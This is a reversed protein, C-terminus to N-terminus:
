QLKKVKQIEFQCDLLKLLEEVSSIVKYKCSNISQKNLYNLVGDFCHDINLIYIPINKNKIIITYIESNRAEESPLIIIIDSILLIRDICEQYSNEIYLKKINNTEIECNRPIIITNKELDIDTYIRDSILNCERVIFYNKLIEFIQELNPNKYLLSRNIYINM